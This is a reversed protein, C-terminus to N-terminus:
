VGFGSPNAYKELLERVAKRRAYPSGYLGQKCCIDRQLRMKEMSAHVSLSGLRHKSEIITQITTEVEDAFSPNKEREMEECYDKWRERGYESNLYKRCRRTIEEETIVM